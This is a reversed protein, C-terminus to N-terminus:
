SQRPSKTKSSPLLAPAQEPLRLRHLASGSCLQAPQPLIILTLAKGTPREPNSSRYCVHQRYRRILQAPIQRTASAPRIVGSITPLLAL